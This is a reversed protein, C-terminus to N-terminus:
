IDIIYLYIPYGLEKLFSYDLLTQLYKEKNILGNSNIWSNASLSIEPLM